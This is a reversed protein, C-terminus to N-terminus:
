RCMVARTENHVVIDTLLRPDSTQLYDVTDQTDFFLTKTWDCEDAEVCMSAPAILLIM